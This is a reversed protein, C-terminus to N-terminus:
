GASERELCVAATENSYLGHLGLSSLITDAEDVTAIAHRQVFLTIVALVVKRKRPVRTGRKWRSFTSDEYVFGQQALTDGFQRLTEFGARLRYYNFLKNFPAQEYAARNM